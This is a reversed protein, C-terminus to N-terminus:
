LRTKSIFAHQLGANINFISLNVSVLQKLPKTTPKIVSEFFNMLSSINVSVSLKKRVLYAREFKDEEKPIIFFM